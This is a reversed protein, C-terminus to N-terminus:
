YDDDYNEIGRNCAIFAYVSCKRQPIRARVAYLTFLTFICLIQTTHRREESNHACGGLETEKPSYNLSNRKNITNMRLLFLSKIQEVFINREGGINPLTLLLLFFLLTNQFNQLCELCEILLYSAQCAFSFGKQFTICEWIMNFYPMYKYSCVALKLFHFEVKTQKQESTQTAGCSSESNDRCKKQQNIRKYVCM